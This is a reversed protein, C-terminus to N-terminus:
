GHDNRWTDNILKVTRRNLSAVRGLVSMMVGRDVESILLRNRRERKAELASELMKIQVALTGLEEAVEPSPEPRRVYTSPM